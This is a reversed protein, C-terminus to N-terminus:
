AKVQVPKALRNRVMRVDERSLHRSDFGCDVTKSVTAYAM